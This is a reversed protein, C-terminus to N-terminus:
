GIPLSRSAIEIAVVLIDPAMKAQSYISSRVSFAVL